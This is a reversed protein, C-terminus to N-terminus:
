LSKHDTILWDVVLKTAVFIALAILMTHATKHVQSIHLQTIHINLGVPNGNITWALDAAPKSEESSCNLELSQM